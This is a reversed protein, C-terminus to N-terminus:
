SITKFCHPQSSGEEGGEGLKSEEPWSGLLFEKTWFSGIRGKTPKKWRWCKPAAAGAALLMKQDPFPFSMPM